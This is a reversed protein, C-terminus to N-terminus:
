PAGRRLRALTDVVASGIRPCALADVLSPKGVPVVLAVGFFSTDSADVGASHAQQRAPVDVVVASLGAVNDWWM